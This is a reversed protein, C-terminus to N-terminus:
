SANLYNLINLGNLDDFILRDPASSQVSQLLSSYCLPKLSVILPLKANSNKSEPFQSQAAVDQVSRLSQVAQVIHVRLLNQIIM